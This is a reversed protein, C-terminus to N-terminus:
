PQIGSPGSTDHTSPDDPLPILPLALPWGLHTFTGFSSPRWKQFPLAGFGYTTSLALRPALLYPLIYRIHYILFAM